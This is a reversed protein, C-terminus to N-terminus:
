DMEFEVLVMNDNAGDDCVLELQPNPIDKCGLPANWFLHALSHLLCYIHRLCFNVVSRSKANRYKFLRSFGM